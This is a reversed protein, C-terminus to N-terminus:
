HNNLDSQRPTLNHCVTISRYEPKADKLKKLNRMIDNKKTEDRFPILM